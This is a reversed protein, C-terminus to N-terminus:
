QTIQEIDTDLSLRLTANYFSILDDTLARIQAKADDTPTVSNESTVTSNKVNNLAQIYTDFANLILEAKSKFIAFNNEAETTNINKSKLFEIIKEIRNETQSFQDTKKIKSNTAKEISNDIVNGDSASVAAGPSPKVDSTGATGNTPSQAQGITGGSPAQKGTAGSPPKVSAADSPSMNKFKNIMETCQARTQGTKSVCDDITPVSSMSTAGLALFPVLNIVAVVFVISLKKASDQKNKRMVKLGLEDESLLAHNILFYFTNCRKNVASGGAEIRSANRAPSRFHFNVIKM